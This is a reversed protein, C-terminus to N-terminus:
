NIFLLLRFYYLCVYKLRTNKTKTEYIIEKPNYVPIGKAILIEEAQTNIPVRKGQIRWHFKFMRDIHQRNLVKYLRM